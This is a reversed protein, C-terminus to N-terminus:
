GNIYREKGLASTASCAPNRVRCTVVKAMVAAHLFAVRVALGHATIYGLSEITCTYNSIQSYKNNTQM